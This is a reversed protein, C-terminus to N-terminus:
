APVFNFPILFIIFRRGVASISKVRSKAKAPAAPARKAKAAAAVKAPPRETWPVVDIEDDAAAANEEAEFAEEEEEDVLADVAGQEALENAGPNNLIDIPMYFDLEGKLLNPEQYFSLPSTYVDPSNAQAVHDSVFGERKLNSPGPLRNHYLDILEINSSSEPFMTGNTLNRSRFLRNETDKNLWRYRVLDPAPETEEGANKSKHPKHTKVLLIFHDSTSSDSHTYRVWARFIDDYRPMFSKEAAVSWPFITPNPPAYLLRLLKIKSNSGKTPELAIGDRPTVNQLTFADGEAAAAPNSDVKAKKSAPRAKKPAPPPSKRRKPPEEEVADDGEVDQDPHADEDEYEEIPDAPDEHHEFQGVAEDEEEDEPPHDTHAPPLEQQTKKAVTMGFSKALSVGGTRNPTTSM